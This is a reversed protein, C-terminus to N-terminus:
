AGIPTKHNDSQEGPSEQAPSISDQVALAPEKRDNGPADDSRESARAAPKGKAGEVVVSISAAALLATGIAALRWWDDSHALVWTWYGFGAAMALGIVLNSVGRKVELGRRELDVLRRTLENLHGTLVVRAESGEPLKSLLDANGKIKARTREVPGIRVFLVQMIAAVPGALKLLLDVNVTRRESQAAKFCPV